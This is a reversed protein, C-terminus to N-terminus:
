HPRKAIHVSEKTKVIEFRDLFNGESPCHLLKLKKILTSLCTETKHKCLGSLPTNYKGASTHEVFRTKTTRNTKETYLGSCEKYEISYVM